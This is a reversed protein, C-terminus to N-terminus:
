RKSKEQKLIEALRKEGHGKGLIKKVNEVFKFNPHHSGQHCQTCVKATVHGRILSKQGGRQQHLGGRSHCNECQVNVLSQPPKTQSRPNKIDYSGGPQQWGVVHCGICDLDFQKKRKVLTAYAHAHATKQWFKYADMHCTKCQNVGVYFNGKKDKPIPKINKLAEMNALKVDNQYREVRDAAAPFDPLKSSVKLLTHFYGNRGAALQPPANLNKKKEQIKKRLADAQKDYVKAIPEFAKGQKRMSQAQQIYALVQKEMKVLSEKRKAPTEVPGWEAKNDRIYMAFIGLKQGEKPTSFLFASGSRQPPEFAEEEAGEIAFDIGKTANMLSELRQSGLTSLLVIRDVKLKKLAAIERKAAALYPTVLLNREAWYAKYKAAKAKRKAEPTGTPIAPSETLAFFGIRLKGVQVVHHGAFLPKKTKSDLLNAALAKMGSRQVLKLLEKRGFTLDYPGIGMVSAGMLRFLDAVMVAKLESQKRKAKGLWLEEYFLNGADASIVSLGRQRYGKALSTVRGLGGLMDAQCGCPEFYSKLGGSYLMVVGPVGSIQKPPEPVKKLFDLSWAAQAPRSAPQTASARRPNPKSSPAAAILGLGAVTACLVFMWPSRFLRRRM